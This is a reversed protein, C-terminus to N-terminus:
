LQALLCFGGLTHVCLAPALPGNCGPPPAGRCGPQWTAGGRAHASQARRWRMAPPGYRSSLDHVLEDARGEYHKLILDIRSPIANDANFFSYFNLLIDHNMVVNWCEPPTTRTLRPTHKTTLPRRECRM